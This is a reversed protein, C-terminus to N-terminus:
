ISHTEPWNSHTHMNGGFNILYLNFVFCIIIFLDLFLVYLYDFLYTCIFWSTSSLHMQDTLVPNNSVAFSSIGSPM